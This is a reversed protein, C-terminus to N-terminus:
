EKQSSSGQDSEKKQSCSCPQSASWFYQVFRPYVKLDSMDCFGNAERTSGRLVASSRQQVWSTSWLLVQLAAEAAIKDNCWLVTNLMLCMTTSQCWPLLYHETCMPAHGRIRLSLRGVLRIARPEIETQQPRYHSPWFRSPSVMCTPVVERLECWSFVCYLRINSLSNKSPM